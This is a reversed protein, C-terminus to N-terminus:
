ASTMPITMTCGGYSVASLQFAFCCHSEARMGPPPWGPGSVPHGQEPLPDWIGQAKCAIVLGRFCSGPAALGLAATYRQSIYPPSELVCTHGTLRAWLHPQTHAYLFSFPCSPSLFLMLTWLSFNGFWSQPSLEPPAQINIPRATTGSDLRTQSKAIGNVAAHWTGRAEM